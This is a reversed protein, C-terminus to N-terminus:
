ELSEEDVELVMISQDLSSWRPRTYTVHHIRRVGVANNCLEPLNVEVMGGSVCGNDYDHFDLIVIRGGPRTVRILDKLVEEDNAM